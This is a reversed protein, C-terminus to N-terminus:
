GLTSPPASVTLQAGHPDGIFFVQFRQSAGAALVPLVARGAAVVMAGRRAVAYVALEQQAVRSGNAVTGEAGAGSAPDEVLHAGHVAIQPIAGDAAAAEGVKVAVGSTAGPSQVQDNVWTLEGHAGLLPASVLTPALGPASNTYVTTGRPDKVAIAIPIDKLPRSTLNRMTVYAASGESGHLVGSRIVKVDSSQRTISLGRAHQTPRANADAARELKASKEATTECGTLTLALAVLVLAARRV